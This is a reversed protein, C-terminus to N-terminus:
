DHTWFVDSQRNSHYPHHLVNTLRESPDQDDHLNLIDSRQQPNMPTWLGMNLESPEYTILIQRKHDKHLVLFIIVDRLGHVNIQVRQVVWSVELRSCNGLVGNQGPGRLFWLVAWNQSGPFINPVIWIQVILDDM